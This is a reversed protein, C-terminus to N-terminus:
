IKCILCGTTIKDWSIVYKTGLDRDSTNIFIHIYTCDSQMTRINWLQGVKWLLWLYIQNSLISTILYTQRLFIYFEIGHVEHCFLCKRRGFICLLLLVGVLFPVLGVNWQWNLLHEPFFWWDNDTNQKALSVALALLPHPTTSQATIFCASVRLTM